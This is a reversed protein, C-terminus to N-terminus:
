EQFAVQLIELLTQNWTGEKFNLTRWFGFKIEMAFVWGDMWLDFAHKRDCCESHFLSLRARWVDFSEVVFFICLPWRMLCECGTIIFFICQFTKINWYLFFVYFIVKFFSCHMFNHALIWGSWNTANYLIHTNFQHFRYYYCCINFTYQYLVSFHSFVTYIFNLLNQVHSFFLCVCLFICYVIPVYILTILKKNWHKSKCKNQLLLIYSTVKIHTQRYLFTEIGFM